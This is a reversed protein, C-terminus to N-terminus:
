QFAEKKFEIRIQSRADKLWNELQPDDSGAPPPPAGPKLRNASQVPPAPAPGRFRFDVFQVAQAQWLLHQQLQERTIGYKRLAAQLQGESAFHQRRFNEIVQNTESASPPPVNELEIENRILQQDVLREAAEQRKAPSLDLPEQNEFETIRVEEDVESETIVQKGVVVAVRDIVGAQLSAAAVLTIGFSFVCRM